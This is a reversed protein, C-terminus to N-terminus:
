EVLELNPYFQLLNSKLDEILYQKAEKLTSFCDRHKNKCQGACPHYIYSLAVFYEEGNQRADTLTQIYGCPLNVDVCYFYLLGDKLDFSCSTKKKEEIILYESRVIMDNAFIAGLPFCSHRGDPRM